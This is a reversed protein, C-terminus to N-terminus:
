RRLPSQSGNQVPRDSSGERRRTGQNQQPSMAGFESGAGMPYGMGGGGMMGGMMPPMGYMSMPHPFGNMSGMTGMGGMGGMGGMPGMGAMSPSQSMHGQKPSGGAGEGGVMSAGGHGHQSVAQMYAQQAAMAAAMQQQMYPDMQPMQPPSGGGGHGMQSGAYGPMGMGMMMPNMMMMQQWMFPNYGGMMGPWQGQPMGPMGGGNQSMRMAADEERQRREADVRQRERETLTAGLGGAGKRDREHATIAGLLGAQPPPPKTPVNVMGVGAMRAEMEQQKASREAKDSAGAQLLGHPQFVTTMSGPQEQPNLQVFTQRGGNTSGAQSQGPSISRADDEVHPAGLHTSFVSQRHSVLAPHAGGARLQHPGPGPSSAGSPGVPSGRGSNGGGYLSGGSPSASMGPPPLGAAAATRAAQESLGGITHESDTSSNQQNLPPALSAQGSPTAARDRAQRAQEEEEEDEDEEEEEEDESSEGGWAHQAKPKFGKKKGGPKGPKSLAEAHAAAQAQAAEKRDQARKNQGFTSPYANAPTPRSAVPAPLPPQQGATGETPVAGQQDARAPVARPNNAISRGRALAGPSPPQDLFSYAALADEDLRDDSAEHAPITSARSLGSQSPAYSPQTYSSPTDAAPSDHAQRDSATALAAAQPVATDVAPRLPQAPKTAPTPAPLQDSMSRLYFLAGEDYASSFDAESPRRDASEQKPKQVAEAGRGSPALVPAPKSSAPSGPAAAADGVAANMPQEAYPAPASSQVSQPNSRISENGDVRGYLPPAAGAANPKPPDPSASRAYSLMSGQTPSARGTPSAASRLAPQAEAGRQEPHAQDFRQNLDRQRDYDSSREPNKPQVNARQEPRGFGADGSRDSTTNASATPGQGPLQTGNSAAALSGENSPQEGIADLGTPRSGDVQGAAAAREGQDPEQSTEGFDLPPLSGAMEPLAPASTAQSPATSRDAQGAQGNQGNQGNQGGEGNLQRTQATNPTPLPPLVPTREGRMRAAMIGHLNTRCALHREERVDLFEALERDLFLRDKYPGIPYAFFASSPQRADWVFGDPRGYLRFADMFAIVWKMMEANAGRSGAELEPMVMVWGTQRIRNTASLVQSQPFAGEVKFLSSGEVLEPRSPYVAFAHAGYVMTAFPKKHKKSEFFQAVGPAGNNGPPPEIDPAPGTGSTSAVRQPGSANPSSPTSSGISLISSRDGAGGLKHWLKKGVGSGEEPKDKTLVLWCKRWETSGMFRAKVWGEMKGKALPSVISVNATASPPGQM